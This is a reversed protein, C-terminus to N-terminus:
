PLEPKSGSILWKVFEDQTLEFNERHTLQSSSRSVAYVKLSVSGPDRRRILGAELSRLEPVAVRSSIVEVCIKFHEFGKPWPLYGGRTDYIRDGPKFSFASGQTWIWEEPAGRRKRPTFVIDLAQNFSSPLCMHWDPTDLADAPRLLTTLRRQRGTRPSGNDGGSEEVLRIAATLIQLAEM